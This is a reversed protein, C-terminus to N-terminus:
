INVDKGHSLCQSGGHLKLDLQRGQLGLMTGSLTLATHVEGTSSDGGCDESKEDLWFVTCPYASIAFSASELGYIYKTKAQM